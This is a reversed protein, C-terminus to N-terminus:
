PFVRTDCFKHQTAVFIQSQKRIDINQVVIYRIAMAQNYTATMIATTSAVLLVPLTSPAITVKVNYPSSGTAIKIYKSPEGMRRLFALARSCASNSAARSAAEFEFMASLIFGHNKYFQSM